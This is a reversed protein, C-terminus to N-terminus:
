KEPKKQQTNLIEEVKCILTGNYQPDENCRQFFYNKAQEIKTFNFHEENGLTAVRKVYPGIHCHDVTDVYVGYSGLSNKPVLIKESLLFDFVDIQKKTHTPKGVQIHLKKWNIRTVKGNKITLISSDLEKM